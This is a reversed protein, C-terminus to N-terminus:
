KKSNDYDKECKDFADLLKGWAKDDIKRKGNRMDVIAKYCYGTHKSIINCMKPRSSFKNLLEARREEVSMLDWYKKKENESFNIFEILKEKLPHYTDGVFALVVERVVAVEFYPRGISNAYDVMAKRIAACDVPKKEINEM